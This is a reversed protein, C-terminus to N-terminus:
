PVPSLFMSPPISEVVENVFDTPPCSAWFIVVVCVFSFVIYWFLM